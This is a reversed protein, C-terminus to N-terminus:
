GGFPAYVFFPRGDDLEGVELARRAPFHVIDKPRTYGLSPEVEDDHVERKLLYVRERFWCSLGTQACVRLSVCSIHVVEEHGGTVPHVVGIPTTQSAIGPYRIQQSEFLAKVCGARCVLQRPMDGHCSVDSDRPRWGENRVTTNAPTHSGQLLQLLQRLLLGARRKSGIKSTTWRVSARGWVAKAIIGNAKSETRM